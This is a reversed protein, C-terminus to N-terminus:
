QRAIHHLWVCVCVCMLKDISLCPCLSLLTEAATPLNIAALDGELLCLWDLLWSGEFPAINAAKIVHLQSCDLKRGMFAADLARLGAAQTHLRLFWLQWCFLLIAKM